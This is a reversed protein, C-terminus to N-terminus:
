LSKIANEAMKSSYGPYDHFENAKDIHVIGNLHDIEHQLVKAKFGEVEIECEEGSFNKYAVKVKKYRNVSASINPFSLCVEESVETISEVSSFSPNLLILPKKGDKKIDIVCIRKLVGVQNAALGVSSSNSYLTDLMDYILTKLPKTGFEGPLFNISPTRLCSGICDYGNKYMKIIELKSM